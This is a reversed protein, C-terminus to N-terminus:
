MHDGNNAHGVVLGVAWGREVQSRPMGVIIESRGTNILWRARHRGDCMNIADDDFFITPVDIWNKSASKFWRSPPLGQPVTPLFLPSKAWLKDLIPVSVRVMVFDDFLTNLNVQLFDPNTSM